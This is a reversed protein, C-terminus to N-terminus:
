DYILTLNAGTGTASIVTLGTFFDINYNFETASATDIIAIVTGSAATNDYVTLTNSGSGRTNVIIKKLTGPGYKIITTALASAIQVYQSKNELEGIRAMVVSRVEMQVDTTSGGSNTNSLTTKLSLTAAPTATSATVTHYLTGDIFFWVYMDNYFIEYIHATTGITFTTATGNFDGSSVTTDVTARRTVVNFTTASLEFFFGNDTDFAGWKRTNSTTAATPQRVIAQFYGISPSNYKATYKSILAASADATTNTRIAAM